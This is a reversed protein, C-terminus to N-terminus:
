SLLGLWKEFAAKDENIVDNKGNRTAIDGNKKLILLNPFGKVAYKDMFVSIRHDEFPLSLWPM